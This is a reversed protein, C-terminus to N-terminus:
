FWRETTESYAKTDKKCKEQQMQMVNEVGSIDIGYKYKLSEHIWIDNVHKKRKIIGCFKICKYKAAIWGVYACPRPM